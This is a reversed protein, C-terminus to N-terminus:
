QVEFLLGQASKNNVVNGFEDVAIAGRAILENNACKEEPAAQRIFIKRGKRLGDIVGNWTGGKNDSEAVYIERALGYIYANRRMALGASWGAKPSFTSVALVQGDYIHSYLNKFGKTFTLIGQPLVVISKGNNEITTELAIRDVGKAYGSVIVKHELTLKKVVRKTFEVGKDDVNRSGVIAVIDEFFLKTNGKVYLLPPSYKMKLNDRLTTPYKASDLPILEFGQTLLEEALISNNPLEEKAHRIDQAEKASLRFERQLTPIDSSFFEALSIRQKHVIDFILHNIKEVRWKPLHALTIWYSYDNIEM